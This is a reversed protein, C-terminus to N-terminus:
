EDLRRELEEAAIPGRDNHLARRVMEDEQYPEEPEHLFLRRANGIPAPEERAEGGVLRSKRLHPLAFSSVSKVQIRSWVKGESDIGEIYRPQCIVGAVMRRNGIREVYTLEPKRQVMEHNYVRSQVHQTDISPYNVVLNRRKAPALPSIPARPHEEVVEETAM